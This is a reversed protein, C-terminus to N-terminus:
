SFFNSVSKKLHNVMKIHRPKTQSLQFLSDEIPKMTHLFFRYFGSIRALKHLFTRKGFPLDVHLHVPFLDTVGGFRDRKAQNNNFGADIFVVPTGQAICPLACHILSTFVVKANKYRDLILKADNMREQSSKSRMEDSFHTVFQIKDRYKKPTIRNVIAKRYSSTYNTRIVDVFLIDDGRQGTYKPLTLTLCGSLFSSVNHKQLLNLTHTDRCGIPQHQKFYAISLPSTLEKQSKSSIHFSLFLPNVKRNPPWNAGNQMFWGNCLLKTPKDINNLYERDCFVADETLLSAAYSQIDDGINRSNPFYVIGHRM